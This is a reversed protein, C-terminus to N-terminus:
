FNSVDLRKGYLMVLEGDREWKAHGTMMNEGVQIWGFMM